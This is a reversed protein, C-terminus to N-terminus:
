LFCIKLHTVHGRGCLMVEQHCVRTNELIVHNEHLHVLYLFYIKVLFINQYLPNSLGQFILKSLALFHLVNSKNVHRSFYTASSNKAWGPQIGEIIWFKMWYSFSPSLVSSCHTSLVRLNSFRTAQECNKLSKRSNM